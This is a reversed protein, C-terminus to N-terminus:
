KILVASVVVNSLYHGTAYDFTGGCTIVRLEADPVPGYVLNAPFHAKAYTHVATVEFVAVTHNTRFVYIYRGRHLDSLRYFVGPGLQSDIHGAIISSGVAGPRPSGTYWGAVAATAPVQLEGTATLGLRILTTSVGIAPIVLWAPKAVKAHGALGTIRRARGPAQAALGNHGPQHDSKSPQSASREHAAHDVLSWGGVGLATAVLGSLLLVAGASRVFPRRRRQQPRRHRAGPSLQTLQAEAQSAKAPPLDPRTVDADPGDLTM